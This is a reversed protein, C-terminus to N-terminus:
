FRLLFLLLVAATDIKDMQEDMTSWEAIHKWTNAGHWMKPRLMRERQEVLALVWQLIFRFAAEDASQRSGGGGACKMRTSLGYHFNSKKECSDKYEASGGGPSYIQHELRIPVRIM